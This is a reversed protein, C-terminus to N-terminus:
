LVVTTCVKVFVHVVRWGFSAFVFMSAPSSTRFPPISSVFVVSDQNTDLFYQLGADPFMGYLLGRRRSVHWM